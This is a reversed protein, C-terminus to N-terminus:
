LDLRRFSATFSWLNGVRGEFRLGAATALAVVERPFLSDPDPFHETVALVGGPRLVRRLEALARPQDPIEGLVAVLFARDISGDALPLAHASAACLAVNSASADLVKRHALRLMAPQIDLALLRGDPGTRRAAEVTLAGPGCGLELVREGPLVGVRDLERPAQKRRRGTDVVWAQSAPCPRRKRRGATRYYVKLGVLWFALLGAILALLGLVGARLPRM